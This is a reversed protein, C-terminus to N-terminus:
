TVLPSVALGPRGERSYGRHGPWAIHSPGWWSVGLCRRSLIGSDGQHLCFRHYSVFRWRHIEWILLVNKAIQWTKMDWKVFSFSSSFIYRSGGGSFLFSTVRDLVDIGSWASVTGSALVLENSLLKTWEVTRMHFLRGSATTPSRCTCRDSSEVGEFSTCM